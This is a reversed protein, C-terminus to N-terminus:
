ARSTITPASSLRQQLAQWRTPTGVDVWQGQYHEGSVKGTSIARRLLPALPFAGAACGDFLAPRYIGIGSFTLRDGDTDGDTDTVASGRLGFDGQGHHEPNDVLILHALGAPALLLRQLPYDCWVDGNIVLFPDSGLLPLAKFIGGGTELAPYGENSYRITVGWRGGDGLALPLQEGLWGQNIVIDRFGAAALATLHYEIMPRGALSLLPKPTNDTHPRLRDGRGAALIMASTM